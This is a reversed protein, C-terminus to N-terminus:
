SKLHGLVHFGSHLHLKRHHSVMCVGTKLAQVACALDSILTLEQIQCRISIFLALSVLTINAELVIFLAPLCAPSIISTAHLPFSCQLKFFFFYLVFINALNWHISCQPSKRFKYYFTVAAVSVAASVPLGTLDRNHSHLWKSFSEAPISASFPIVEMVFCCLKKNFIMHLLLLNQFLTFKSIFAGGSKAETDCLWHLFPSFLTSTFFFSLLWSEEGTRKSLLLTATGGEPLAAGAARRQQRPLRCPSPPLLSRLWPCGASGTSRHFRLCPQWWCGSTALPHSPKRCPQDCVCLGLAGDQGLVKHGM